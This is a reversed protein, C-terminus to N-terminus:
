AKPINEGFLNSMDEIYIELEELFEEIIEYMDPAIGTKSMAELVEAQDVLGLM